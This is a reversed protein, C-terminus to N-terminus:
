LCTESNLCPDKEHENERRSTNWAVSLVGKKQWQKPYCNQDCEHVIHEKQSILSFTCCWSWRFISKKERAAVRYLHKKVYPFHKILAQCSSYFCTRTSCESKPLSVQSQPSFRPWTNECGNRDSFSVAHTWLQSFFSLVWGFPATPDTWVALLRSLLTSSIRLPRTNVYTWNFVHLKKLIYAQDWNEM